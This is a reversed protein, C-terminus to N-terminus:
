DATTLERTAPAPAARHGHVVPAKGTLKASLWDRWDTLIEYFTPIVLLTLVTSTIVGGIVARGLPARFDAGEGAGIAIPMMGAILAFTTMLIPRLRVRGAEIIAERRRMGAEESWKAFDVLLIANKAVIGMLLIVGILSMLNLTTNTALMALMVGILSLPLSLMIALPELFSGFQVVLVFYMLLVALGLAAFIQGFVQAQDESEGGQRLAYGAPFDLKTTVRANIDKLVETLARGQTNAEVAITRERDLHDIRAPGVGTSIKAVQGLPVAVGRGDPGAVFLPLAALDSVRQRAEPSLRVYVDRTEGSPDIWDGADLGAFAVRLTQAVQGVSVGVAGALGRDLAIELEPKQGRTSLGVDVAGQVQAVEAKVINALRNLERSDPGQLQLQIQKKNEFNGSGIAATVGGLKV